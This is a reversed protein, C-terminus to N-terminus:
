INFSLIHIFSKYTLALYIDISFKRIQFLKHPTRYLYPPMPSGVETETEGPRLFIKKIVVKDM